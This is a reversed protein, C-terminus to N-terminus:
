RRAASEEDRKEELLSVITEKRTLIASPIATIGSFIATSSFIERNPFSKFSTVM